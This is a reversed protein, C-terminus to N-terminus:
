GQSPGALHLGLSVVVLLCVVVGTAADVSVHDEVAVQPPRLEGVFVARVPAVLSTSAVANAITLRDNLLFLPTILPVTGRCCVRFRSILLQHLLAVSQRLVIVLFVVEAGAGSAIGPDACSQVVARDTRM